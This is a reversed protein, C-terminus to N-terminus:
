AHTFTYMYKHGQLMIKMTKKGYSSNSNSCGSEVTLNLMYCFNNQNANAFEWARFSNKTRQDKNVFRVKEKLTWTKDLKITRNNTELWGFTILVYM